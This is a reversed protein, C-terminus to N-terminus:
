KRMGESFLTELRDQICRAEDFSDCNLMYTDHEDQAKFFRLKKGFTKEIAEENLETDMPVQLFVTNTKLSIFIRKEM